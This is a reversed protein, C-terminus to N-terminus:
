ALVTSVLKNGCVKPSGHTHFLLALIRHPSPVPLSICFQCPNFTAVCVACPATCFENDPTSSHLEARIFASGFVFSIFLCLCPLPFFIVLLIICSVFGHNCGCTPSQVHRINNFHIIVAVHGISIPPHLSTLVAGTHGKLVTSRSISRPPMARFPIMVM